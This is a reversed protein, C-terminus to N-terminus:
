LAEQGETTLGKFAPIVDENAELPGVNHLVSWLFLHRYQLNKFIHHYLLEQELPTHCM